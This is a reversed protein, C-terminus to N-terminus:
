RVMRLTASLCRLACGILALRKGCERGCAGSRCWYASLSPIVSARDMHTHGASSPHNAQLRDARLDSIRRRRASARAILFHTPLIRETRRESTRQIVAGPSFVKVRELVDSSTTAPEKSRPDSAHSPRAGSRAHTRPHMQLALPPSRLFLCRARLGIPPRGSTPCYSLCSM